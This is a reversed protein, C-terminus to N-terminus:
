ATPKRKRSERKPRREEVEARMARADDLLAMLDDLPVTRPETAYRVQPRLQKLRNMAEVSRPSVNGLKGHLNLKTEIFGHSRAELVKRDPTTLLISKAMLQVADYLNAVAPTALGAGICLNAAELFQDASQLLGQIRAANYRFDFFIYWRDAHLLATFHGANPDEDTLSMGVLTDLDAPRVLDGAAVPRAARATVVGRVEENLRVVPAQRDPDMIVQAGWLAFDEPLSGAVQRREIEPQFWLEFSQALMRKVAEENM